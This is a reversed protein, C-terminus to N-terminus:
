DIGLMPKIECIAREASQADEIKFITMDQFRQRFYSELAPRFTVIGALFHGDGLIDLARVWGEGQEVELPGIEDFFLVSCPKAKTLLQNVWDFAEPNIQWRGIFTKSAVDKATMLLVKQGTELWLVEIATKLSGQFVAPSIFGCCDIGGRQLDDILRQCTLTKGSGSPGCLGILRSPLKM